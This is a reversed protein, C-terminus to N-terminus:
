RRGSDYRARHQQFLRSLKKSHGRPLVRLAMRSLRFLVQCERKEVPSSAIDHILGATIRAMKLFLIQRLVISPSHRLGTACLTQSAPTAPEFGTEGVM